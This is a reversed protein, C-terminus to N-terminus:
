FPLPDPSDAHFAKRFDEHITWTSNQGRPFFAMDGPQLSVEEGSDMVVTASGKFVVVTEDYSYVWRFRGPTCSWIGRVVRADASKSLVTGSAQPSGQEVWDAPLPWSNLEIDLVRAKPIQASEKTQM